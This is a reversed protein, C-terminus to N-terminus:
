WQSAVRTDSLCIAALAPLVLCMESAQHSASEYRKIKKHGPITSQYHYPSVWENKTKM